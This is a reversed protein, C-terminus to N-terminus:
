YKHIKQAKLAQAYEQSMKPINLKKFVTEFDLPYGTYKNRSMAPFERVSMLDCWYYKLIKLSVDEDKDFGTVFGKALFDLTTGKSYVIEHISKVNKFEPYLKKAEDLTVCDALNSYVARHAFVMPLEKREDDQAWSLVLNEVKEPVIGHRIKITELTKIAPDKVNYFSGKFSFTDKPLSNKGYSTLKVRESFYDTKAIYRTSLINM